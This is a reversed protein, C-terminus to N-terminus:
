EGELYALEYLVDKYQNSYEFAEKYQRKQKLKEVYLTTAIQIMLLDKETHAQDCFAKLKHMIDKHKPNIILSQIIRVGLRELHYILSNEDKSLIECVKLAEKPQNLQYYTYTKLFYYMGENMTFLMLIDQAKGYNENIVHYLALHVQILNYLNPKNYNIAYQSVENFSQFFKESQHLYAHLRLQMVKARNSREFNLLEEFLAIAKDFQQYAQRYKTYDNAMSIALLYYCRAKIHPDEIKKIYSKLHREACFLRRNLILAQGEFLLLTERQKNNLYPRLIHGIKLYKDREHKPRRITISMSMMIIYYEIFYKCHSFYDQHRVLLRYMSRVRDYDGYHISQYTKPLFEKIFWKDCVDNIKIAPNIDLANLINELTEIKANTQRKEIKNLYGYSLQTKKALARLSIGQYNRNLYIKASLVEEYTLSEHM